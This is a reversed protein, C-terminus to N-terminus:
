MFHLARGLSELSEFNFDDGTYRSKVIYSRLYPLRIRDSAKDGVMISRSLDINWRQAADLLMGPEPKRHLSHHAYAAVTGKPHFPCVMVGEIAIGQERFRERMWDHLTNVTQEDFYGRAIGSQNTVVVFLWGRHQAARCFDFIGENFEFQDIRHVYGTDRNIIGDRDLFLAKGIPHHTEGSEDRYDEWVPIGLAGMEKLMCPNDLLDKLKGTMEPRLLWMGSDVYAEM